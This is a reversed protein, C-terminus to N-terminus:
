FSDEHVSYCPYGAHILYRYIYIQIFPYAHSALTEVPFILFVVSLGLFLVQPM